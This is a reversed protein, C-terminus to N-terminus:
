LLMGLRRSAICLQFIWQSVFNLIQLEHLLTNYSKRSVIWIEFSYPSHLLLFIELIFKFVSSFFFSFKHCLFFWLITSAERYSSQDAAAFKVFCLILWTASCVSIKDAGTVANRLTYHNLLHRWTPSCMLLEQDGKFCYVCTLSQKTWRQLTALNLFM